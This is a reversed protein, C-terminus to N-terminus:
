QNNGNLLPRSKTLTQMEGTEPDVIGVLIGEAAPNNRRRTGTAQRNAHM